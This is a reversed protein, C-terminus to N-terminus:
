GELRTTLWSEFRSKSILLKKGLPVCARALGNEHRHRLYWRLSSVTLATPHLGALEKISLLDDLAVRERQTQSPTNTQM